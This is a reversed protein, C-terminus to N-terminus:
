FDAAYNGKHMQAGAGIKGGKVATKLIITFTSGQGVGESALAVYGGHLESLHKVIALGLGLGGYARSGPFDCQFFREFVLPGIEKAIGIGTDTVELHLEQAIIKASITVLGGSPTFKIANVLLNWLCQQLRIVDGSILREPEDIRKELVIGKEDALHRVTTLAKDILSIITFNTINLHLKGSIIRNIDLLDTILQALIMGSQQIAALAQKLRIPDDPTRALLQTWSLLANLPTRLEHSLTAIFDDKAKMLAEAERRSASDFEAQARIKEQQRYAEKIDTIDKAFIIIGGVKNDRGIRRWPRVEWALWQKRGDPRVFVYDRSREVAGKLCRAHVEKWREPIDAFVDYYSRGIVDQSNLSYDSLWRKSAALYRMATDFMAISVPAENIFEHLQELRQEQVQDLFLMKLLATIAIWDLAFFILIQWSIHLGIGNYINIVWALAATGLAVAFVSYIISAFWVLFIVVPLLVILYLAILLLAQEKVPMSYHRIGMSLTTLMVVIAIVSSYRVPAMEAKQYLRKLFMNKVTNRKLLDITSSRERKSFEM